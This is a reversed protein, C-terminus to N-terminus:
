NLGQFICNQVKQRCFEFSYNSDGEITFESDEEEIAEIVSVLADNADDINTADVAVEVTVSVNTPVEFSQM